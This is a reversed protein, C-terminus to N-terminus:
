YKKVLDVLGLKELEETLDINNAQLSNMTENEESSHPSDPLDPAQKVESSSQLQLHKFFDAYGNSAVDQKKAYLKSELEEIKDILQEKETLEQNLQEEKKELRKELNKVKYKLELISREKNNLDEIHSSLESAMDKLQKERNRVLELIKNQEM